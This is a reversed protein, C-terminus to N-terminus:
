YQLSGMDRGEVKKFPVAEDQDNNGSDLIKGSPRTPQNCGIKLHM